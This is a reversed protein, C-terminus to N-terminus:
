FDHGINRLIYYFYFKKYQEKMDLNTYLQYGTERLPVVQETSAPVTEVIVFRFQSRHCRGVEGYWRGHWRM